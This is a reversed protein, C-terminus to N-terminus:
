LRCWPFSSSKIDAVILKETMALCKEYLDRQKANTYLNYGVLSFVVTLVTGAIIGVLIFDAKSM